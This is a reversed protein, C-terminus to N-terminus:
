VVTHLAFMSDLVLETAHLTVCACPASQLWSWILQVDEKIGCVGLFAEGLLLSFM